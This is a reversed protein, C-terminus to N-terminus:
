PLDLLKIILFIQDPFYRDTHYLFFQLNCKWLIFRRKNCQMNHIRFKIQVHCLHNRHRLKHIINQLDHIFMKSLLNILLRNEILSKDRMQLEKCLSNINAFFHFTIICFELLDYPILIVFTNFAYILDFVVHLLSAIM